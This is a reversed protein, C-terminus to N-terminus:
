QGATEPPPCLRRRHGHEYPNVIPLSLPSPTDHRTVAAHMHPRKRFRFVRHGEGHGRLLMCYTLVHQTSGNSHVHFSVLFINTFHIHLHTTKNHRGSEGVLALMCNVKRKHTKYIM